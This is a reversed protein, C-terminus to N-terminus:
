TTLVAMENRTLLWDELAIMDWNDEFASHSDTQLCFQEDKIGYLQHYRAAMVGRSRELSKPILVVQERRCLRDLRCYEELCDLDDKGNQQVVSAYIRSPYKAHAFAEMLTNGCLPDRYSALLLIIKVNPNKKKDHRPPPPEYLSKSDVKVPNVTDGDFVKWTGQYLLNYEIDDERRFSCDGNNLRLHIRRTSNYLQVTKQPESVQIEQFYFKGIGNHFEVWSNDIKKYMIQFYIVFSCLFVEDGSCRRNAM